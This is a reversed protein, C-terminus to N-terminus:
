KYSNVKAYAIRNTKVVKVKDITPSIHKQVVIETKPLYEYKIGTLTQKSYLYTKGKLRYHKGVTTKYTVKKPKDAVVKTSSLYASSVWGKAPATIYSWSGNVKTVTVKTGKKLQTLVKSSKDAKARVNLSQSQTAVYKTVSKKVTSKKKIYDNSFIWYNVSNGYKEFKKESVFVTNGSLKAGAAKRSATDYKGVYSFPDYVAVTGNDYGVLVIYHGSTTFLDRKM